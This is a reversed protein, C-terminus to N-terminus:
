QPQSTKVGDIVGRFFAIFANINRHYVIHVGSTFWFQFGFFSVLFSLYQRRTAHQKMFLFRNKTMYYIQNYNLTDGTSAEVKHWVKAKPIYCIKFGARQARLCYDADEYYVFFRTDFAGEKEIVCRKLLFIGTYDIERKKDYQGKDIEGHAIQPNRGKKLDIAGGIYWIKNPEHYFLIKPGAIGIDQSSEAAKVLESLCHEDVIIDNDLIFAYNADKNMAYEVGVNMGGGWGLNMGNEILHDYSFKNKVMDQSGDTSGNDVVIVEYNPYDLKEISQLCEELVEKGNWNLVIIFVKPHNM